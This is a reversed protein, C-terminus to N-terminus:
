GYLYKKIRRAKIRLYFRYSFSKMLKNEFFWQILKSWATEERLLRYGNFTGSFFNEAQYYKFPIGVELFYNGYMRAGTTDLLPLHSRLMHMLEEHSSPEHTSGLGRYMTKGALISVKGWYAAEIGITSGFTLVLDSKEMLLYTSVPSEAPILTLYPAELAYLREKDKNNVNKLNPHIRLFIQIQDAETIESTIRRLGELQTEYLDNKWEKSLSAFEDESSNFIVVKKRPTDWNEPLIEQQDQTFSYWFGLDGAKRKEYFKRATEERLDPDREEWTRIIKSKVYQLDHVTTNESLSYLDKNSGREHVLCLIGNQRCAELVAKTHALRGNFVYVRDPKNENLWRKMSLFTGAAGVMFDSITKHLKKFDPRPDRVISIISSAVGYGIEFGDIVVEQIEELSHFTNPLNKARAAEEATLSPLKIKQFSRGIAKYGEKRMHTCQICVSPRFFPNLDCNPLQSDCFIQIVEDGQDLHLTIIELETDYHPPWFVHSNFVAVKM